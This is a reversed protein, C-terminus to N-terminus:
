DAIFMGAVTDFRIAGQEAIEQAVKKRLRALNEPTIKAKENQVSLVYRVITEADTVRLETWLQRSEIHQFYKRLQAEGNEMCFPLCNLLSTADKGLFEFILDKMRQMHQQGNTSAFFKGGPKLVRRIESLGLQLDPVHYLMHNAIVADFSAAEFDLKQADMKQLSFRADHGVVKQAEGIMGDTLDSLVIRWQSPIRALNAGWLGGPGCGIELVRADGSIESIIKDMVWTPWSMQTNAFKYIAARANFNSSDSYQELIEGASQASM